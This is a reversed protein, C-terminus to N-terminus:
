SMQLHWSVLYFELWQWMYVFKGFLDVNRSLTLQHCNELAKEKGLTTEELSFICCNCCSNRSFSFTIINMTVSTVGPPEDKVNLFIESWYLFNSLVDIIECLSHEIEFKFQKMFFYYVPKLKEFNLHDMSAPWWKLFKLIDSGSFSHAKLYVSKM